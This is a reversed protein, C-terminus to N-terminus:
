KQGGVGWWHVTDLLSRKVCLVDGTFTKRITGHGRAGLGLRAAVVPSPFPRWARVPPSKWSGPVESRLTGEGQWSYLSMPTGRSCCFLVHSKVWYILEVTSFKLNYAWITQANCADEVLQAWLFLYAWTLQPGRGSAALSDSLVHLLSSVGWSELAFGARLSGPLPVRRPRGEQTAEEPLHGVAPLREM